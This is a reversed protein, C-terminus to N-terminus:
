SMGSTPFGKRMMGVKLYKQRRELSSNYEHIGESLITGIVCKTYKILNHGIIVLIVFITPVGHIWSHVICFHDQHYVIAFPSAQAGYLEELNGSSV